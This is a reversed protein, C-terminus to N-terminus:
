GVRAPTLGADFLYDLVSAREADTISLFPASTNANALVGREVLAFKMTGVLSAFVGIRSPDGLEVLKKLETLRSQERSVAAWDGALAERYLRVFGDPDVNGLSPVLGDAGLFLGVEALGENGMFVSFPLDKTGEIVERFNMVNGSSDKIGVVDGAHALEITVASPISTHTTSPIDYAVLPVDIASALLKYHHLIENRHIEVYYPATAVVADVGLAVASKAHEIVRRTGSDIVGGLVPLQGAATGVVTEIVQRRQTDDLLAIEASSGCAFLGDVGAAILHECLSELSKTDVSGDDNLPTLVPPIVGALNAFHNSRPM